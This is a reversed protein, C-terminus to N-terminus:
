RASKLHTYCSTVQMSMWVERMQKLVTDYKKNKTSKFLMNGYVTRNAYISIILHIYMSTVLQIATDNDNENFIHHCHPFTAFILDLIESRFNKDSDFITSTIKEIKLVESFYYYLRCVIANFTNQLTSDKNEIVKPNCISTTVDKMSQEYVCNGTYACVVGEGTDVLSCGDSGDCIHYRKCYVCVFINKFKYVMSAISHNIPCFSCKCNM